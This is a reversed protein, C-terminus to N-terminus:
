RSRRAARELTPAVTSSALAAVDRRQRLVRERRPADRDHRGSRDIPAAPSRAGRGLDPAHRDAAVVGPDRQLLRDHLVQAAPADRDQSRPVSM